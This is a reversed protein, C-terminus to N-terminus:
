PEGQRSDKWVSARNRPQSAGLEETGRSRQGQQKRLPVVERLKWPRQQESPVNESLGETVARNSPGGLCHSEATDKM